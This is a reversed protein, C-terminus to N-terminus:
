HIRFKTPVIPPYTPLTKKWLNTLFVNFYFFFHRFNSYFCISQRFLWLNKNKKPLHCKSLTPQTIAFLCNKLSPSVQKCNACRKLMPCNKWYHLDLGEETFSSNREGCFICISFCYAWKLVRSKRVLGLLCFRVWEWNGGCGKVIFFIAVKGLKDNFFLSNSWSIGCDCVASLGKLFLWLVIVLCWSSLCLLAVLERKGMSIIAFSSHVCLLACCFM